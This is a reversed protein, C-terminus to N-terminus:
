CPHSLMKPTVFSCLSFLTKKRMQGLEAYQRTLLFFYIKEENIALYLLSHKIM